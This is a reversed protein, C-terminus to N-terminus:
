KITQFRLMRDKIPDSKLVFKSATGNNGTVRIEYYADNPSNELFSFEFSLFMSSGVNPKLNFSFPNGTVVNGDLIAVFFIPEINHSVVEVTIQEGHV